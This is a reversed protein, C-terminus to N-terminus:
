LPSACRAAHSLRSCLPGQVGGGDFVTGDEKPEWGPAEATWESTVGIASVPGQRQDGRYGYLTVKYKQDPELGSITVKDKLGSLRVAKRHGDGNKCHVLFHDFWGEPVTWSLHLSNPSSGTVMLERLIPENRPEPAETSPETPFTEEM